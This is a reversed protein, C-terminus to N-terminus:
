DLETSPECAVASNGAECGEERLHFVALQFRFTAM